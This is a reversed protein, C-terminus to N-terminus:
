KIQALYAELEAIKDNATKIQNEAMNKESIAMQLQSELMNISSQFVVIPVVVEKGSVDKMAIDKYFNLVKDKDITQEKEEVVEKELDEQKIYTEM